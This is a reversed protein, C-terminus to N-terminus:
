REERRRKKDAYYRHYYLSRPRVEGNFVIGLAKSEDLASLAAALAPRPTRRAAVVLVFGDVWQSVARCDPLLVLPPTDVVVFDYQRRAEGLLEGLRPSRLLEFPVGNTRGAPLVSLNFPPRPRVVSALTRGADLLAGALGVDDRGERLGLRGAV